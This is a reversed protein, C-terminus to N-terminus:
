RTWSGCHRPRASCCPPLAVAYLQSPSLSRLPGAATVEDYLCSGAEDWFRDAYARQLERAWAM